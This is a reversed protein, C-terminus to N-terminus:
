KVLLSGAKGLVCAQEHVSTCDAMWAYSDMGQLPPGPPYPSSAGAYVIKRITEAM